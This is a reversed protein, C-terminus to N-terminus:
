RILRQSRRRQGPPPPRHPPRVRNTSTSARNELGGAGGGSLKQGRRRGPWAEAHASNDCARRLRGLPRSCVSQVRLAGSPTRRAPNRTFHVPFLAHATGENEPSVERPRTRLEETHGDDAGRGCPLRVRMRLPSTNPDPTLVPRIKGEVYGLRGAGPFPRAVDYKSRDGGPRRQRRCYASQTAAQLQPPLPTTHINVQYM